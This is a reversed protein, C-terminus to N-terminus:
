VLSHSFDAAFFFSANNVGTVATIRLNMVRTTTNIAQVSAFPQVTAWAANTAADAPTLVFLPLYQDEYAAGLGGTLDISPPALVPVNIQRDDAVGTWDCNDFRLVLKTRSNRGGGLSANSKAAINASADTIDGSLMNYGVVPVFTFNAAAM